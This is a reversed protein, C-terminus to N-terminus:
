CVVGLCILIITSVIICFVLTGWWFWLYVKPMGVLLKKYLALLSYKVCWLCTWYLIGSCWMVESALKIDQRMTPWPPIEGRQLRQLKFFNPTIIVYLISFTLYTAFSLYLWIDQWEVNRRRIFQVIVRVTFVTTTLAVLVYDARLLDEQSIWEIGLSM